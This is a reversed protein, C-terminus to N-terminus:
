ELDIDYTYPSLVRTSEWFYERLPFVIGNQKAWREVRRSKRTMNDPYENEDCWDHLRKGCSTMVERGYHLTHVITTYGFEECEANFEDRSYAMDFLMNNTVLHAHTYYTLTTHKPSHELYGAVIELLDYPLIDEQKLTNLM